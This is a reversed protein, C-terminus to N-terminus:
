QQPPMMVTDISHIVGNSAKIDAKIVRANNVMVGKGKKLTVNSGEVTAVAGAKIDKAFVAGPLVHYTLIKQLKEKNEPKLLDKLTAKPLKAFAADTPAFVTFPGEGSLTEVLGAAKLAKVLTKFSSNKSAVDVITMKKASTAPTKKGPQSMGGAPPTSITPKSMTGSPTKSPSITPSMTPTPMTTTGPTGSQAHSSVSILLGTGAIAVGLTAAISKQFFYNSM